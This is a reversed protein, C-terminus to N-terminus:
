EAAGERKRDKPVLVSVTVTRGAILRVDHAAADLHVRVPIRQALRVWSFTPNINALSNGSAGRERDEIGAAISEVTGTLDTDVGMVHVLAKDGVRIAPLKTEEFYGNAYFSDSNILALVQRGATAYNGPQLELNTVVGNVTAKVTTRDLNLQATQSAVTAAALQTNAADFQSKAADLQAKLALLKANSQEAQETTALNGLDKNRRVDREAQSLQAEEAAIAARAAGIAAQAAAIAARSQELALEYRARDIVFLVDGVHVSQGDKVSVTTVLGNIDPSVLVVDARLRGDRTWPDRNYRIWLWRSGFLATIVIALTVLVSVIKKTNPKMM